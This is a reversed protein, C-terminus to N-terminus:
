RTGGIMHRLYAKEIDSKFNRSVYIIKDNKLVIYNKKIRDIHMINVIFSRHSKVFLGADLKSEVWSLAKSFSFSRDRTHVMITKNIVEVYYIEAPVFVKTYNKMDVVLAKNNLVYEEYAERFHRLYYAEDQGKLMYRFAGVEYGQLSFEIYNTLFIIMVNKDFERIIKAVKLGTIGPMEIDLFIIDALKSKQESLLNFGDTHTSIEIIGSNSFTKSIYLIVKKIDNENDDCIAIRM